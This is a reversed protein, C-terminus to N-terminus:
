LPVDDRKKRKAMHPECVAPVTHRPDAKADPKRWRNLLNAVHSENVGLAVAIDHTDMGQGFLRVVDTLTVKPSM